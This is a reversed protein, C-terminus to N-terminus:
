SSARRAAPCPSSAGKACARAAGSFRTAPRAESAEIGRYSPVVAAIERRIAQADELGLHRRTRPLRRPGARARDVMGRASRRIDHGAIYPSFVVRRETTTETVGGQHEYRTRAPLLYVVDAPDILMPHTLALDQHIRVPVRALAREVHRPDPLTDRLNGGIVYFVDLVGTRPPRSWRPPRCGSARRRDSVGRAAGPAVASAEGIAVGGPFVNAYAGMEAGGQVGSHGRIPM